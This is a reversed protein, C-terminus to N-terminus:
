MPFNMASALTLAPWGVKTRGRPDVRVSGALDDMMLLNLCKDTLRTITRVIIRKM